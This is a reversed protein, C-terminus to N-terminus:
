AKGAAARLAPAQCGGGKAKHGPDDLKRAAFRIIGLGLAKALSYDGEPPQEGLLLVLVRQCRKPTVKPRVTRQAIPPNTAPRSAIRARGRWRRL